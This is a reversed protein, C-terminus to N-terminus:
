PEFGNRFVLDAVIEITGAMEAHNACDYYLTPPANSPVDFTITTATSVGNASLGGGTYANQSGTSPATKIWFPHIPSAGVVLRYTQGTYLTLTPNGTAMGGDSAIAWRYNGFGESTDVAVTFTNAAAGITKIVLGAVMAFALIGRFGRSSCVM